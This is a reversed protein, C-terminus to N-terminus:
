HVPIIRKPSIGVMQCFDLADAYYCFYRDGGGAGFGKIKYMGLGGGIQRLLIIM